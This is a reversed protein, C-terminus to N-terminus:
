ARQRGIGCSPFNVLIRLLQFLYFTAPIFQDAVVVSAAVALIYIIFLGVFPLQRLVNRRTAILAIALTDLLSLSIADVYGLWRPLNYFAADVNLASLTFPFLGLAFYAYRRLKPQSQLLVIFAPISIIILLIGIYRM